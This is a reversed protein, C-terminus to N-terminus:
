ATRRLRLSGIAGYYDTSSANKTAMELSVRVKATTAVAIGPVTTRVNRTLAAAYGDVTGKATGDFQVTYIGRNSGQHHLLDVAWTGAALPVDWAIEANIVGTSQKWFGHLAATDNGSLSDWATQATPTPFVDIDIVWPMHVNPDFSGGGPITVTAKGAGADTVTVGAGAFNLATAAAVTSVGEDEVRIGSIKADLSTQLDVVSAIPQTGTHNARQVAAAQAANAKTQAGAPTEAADATSAAAAIGAEIQDLAPATIPTTTDPHNKWTPHVKTYAM